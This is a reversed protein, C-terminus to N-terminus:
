IAVQRLKQESSTANADVGNKKKGKSETRPLIRFSISKVNEKRQEGTETPAIAPSCICLFTELCPPFEPCGLCSM